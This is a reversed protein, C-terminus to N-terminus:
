SYDKERPNRDIAHAIAAPSKRATAAREYTRGPTTRAAPVEARPLSLWRAREPSLLSLVRAEVDRASEGAAIASDVQAALAALQSPTFPRAKREAIQVWAVPSIGEPAKVGLPAAQPPSDTLVIGAGQGIGVGGGRLNVKPESRTPHPNSERPHSPAGGTSPLPASGGVAPPYERLLSPARSGEAPPPVEGQHSPALLVGDLRYRVVGSGQRGVEVLYGAKVLAHVHRRAQKPSLSCRAATDALSPWAEGTLDNARDAYALLVFKLPSPTLQTDWVRAQLKLGM